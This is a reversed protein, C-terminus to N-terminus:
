NEESIKIQQEVQELLSQCHKILEAGRKYSSLTEELSLKGSEMDAILKELEVVAKEYNITQIPNKTNEPTVKATPM